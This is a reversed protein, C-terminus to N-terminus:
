GYKRKVAVWWRGVNWFGVVRYITEKFGVIEEASSVALRTYTEPSIQINNTIGPPPLESPSHSQSDM